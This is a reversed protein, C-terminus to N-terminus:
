REMKNWRSCLCDREDTMGIVVARSLCVLCVLNGDVVLELTKGPVYEADADFTGKGLSVKV